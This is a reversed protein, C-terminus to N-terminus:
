SSAEVPMPAVSRTDLLRLMVASMIFICFGLATPMAVAVIKTLSEPVTAVFLLRLGLAFGGGALLCTTALRLAFPGMADWGVPGFKRHLMVIMYTANLLSALSVALGIGMVGLWRALVIAFVTNAITYIVTSIFPTRLDANAYFMTQTVSVIRGLLLDPVMCRIIVAIVVADATSFQGRQFLLVVLPRAAFVLWICIPLGIVTLLQISELLTKRQRGLDKAAAHKAILPLTVQVVSGLLIGAVASVIRSAYRLLTLSGSGLFSGLVNQLLSGSEGLVHGVLPYGFSAFIARLRSDSRDLVWRYRFGHAALVSVLLVLQVCSGLVMGAALAQIGFRSQFSFVVIIAVVNTVFKGSCSVLYSHRAYLVSQMISALGQLLVLAFVMKSLWVGLAIANADLGPIELPMFIGSLVMGAISMAAFMLFCATILNRLLTWAEGNDRRDFLESFVPVLIKPSQISLIGNLLTPITMAAFFADTRYGVGFTFVVVADLILGSVAGAGSLAATIGSNRFLYNGSIKQVFKMRKLAQM